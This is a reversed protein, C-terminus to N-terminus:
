REVPGPPKGAPGKREEPKPPPPLERTLSEIAPLADRVASRLASDNPNPALCLGLVHTTDFSVCYMPGQDDCYLEDISGGEALSPELPDLNAAIRSYLREQDDGFTLYASSRMIRGAADFVFANTAGTRQCLTRLQIALARQPQVFATM